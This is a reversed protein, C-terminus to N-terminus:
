VDISVIRSPKLEGHANDCRCFGDAKRSTARLPLRQESSGSADAPGSAQPYARLPYRVSTVGVPEQTARIGLFFGLLIFAVLGILGGVVGGAVINSKQRKSPSPSTFSSLPSPPPSLSTPSTGSAEALSYLACSSSEHVLSSNASSHSLRFLARLFPRLQDLVAGEAYGSRSFRDLRLHGNAIKETQGVQAL